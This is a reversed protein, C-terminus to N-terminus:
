VPCFLLLSPRLLLPLLLFLFLRLPCTGAEFLFLFSAQSIVSCTVALVIPLLFLLGISECLASFKTILVGGWDGM